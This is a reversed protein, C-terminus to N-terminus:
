TDNQRKNSAGPPTMLRLDSGPLHDEAKVWRLAPGEELDESSEPDVDPVHMPTLM